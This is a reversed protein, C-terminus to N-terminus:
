INDMSLLETRQNALKTRQIALDTKTFPM